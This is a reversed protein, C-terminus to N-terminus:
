KKHQIIQIIKELQSIKELKEAELLITEQLAGPKGTFDTYALGDINVPKLITEVVLIENTYNILELTNGNDIQKPKESLLKYGSFQKEDTHIIGYSIVLDYTKSYINNRIRATTIYAIDEPNIDLYNNKIYLFYDVIEAISTAGAEKLLPTNQSPIINFNISMRTGDYVIGEINAPNKSNNIPTYPEIEYKKVNDELKKLPSELPDPLTYNTSTPEKQTNQSHVCIPGMALLTILGYTKLNNM